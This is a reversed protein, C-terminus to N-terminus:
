IDYIYAKHTADDRYFILTHENRGAVSTKTNLVSSFFLPEDTTGILKRQGNADTYDIIFKQNRMENLLLSIDKDDKPRIAAFKQKYVEGNPTQQSEETFGITGLTAFGCYWYKGTKLQLPEVIRHEIPMTLSEVDQVPIFNFSVVGGLNDGEHRNIDNM